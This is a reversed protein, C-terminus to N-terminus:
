GGRRDTGAEVRAENEGNNIYLFREGECVARPEATELNYSASFRAVSFPFKTKKRASGVVFFRCLREAHKQVMRTRRRKHKAVFLTDHRRISVL